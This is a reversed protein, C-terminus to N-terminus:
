GTSGYEAIHSSWVISPVRYLPKKLDISIGRGNHRLVQPAVVVRKWWIKFIVSEMMTVAALAYFM